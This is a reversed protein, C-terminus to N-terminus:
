SETSSLSSRNKSKKLQWYKFVTWTALIYAHKFEGSEVMKDIAKESHWDNEIFEEADAPLSAKKTNTAVFVHTKASSRRDDSYYSGILELDGRLGCEEMLERNAGKYLDEGKLVSGGPFRYLVEAPPHSYERQLLIFGDRRLAIITAVEKNGKFKLYKTTNGDPLVVTDEVLIIRPHTFITEEKLTKWKKIAM